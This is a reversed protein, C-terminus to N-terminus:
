ELFFPQDQLFFASPLKKVEGAGRRGARRRGPPQPHLHLGSVCHSRSCLRMSPTTMASCDSPYSFVGIASGHHHVQSPTRRACFAKGWLMQCFCECINLRRPLGLRHTVPSCVIPQRSPKFSFASPHSTQSLILNSISLLFIAPYDRCVYLNLLVSEFLM